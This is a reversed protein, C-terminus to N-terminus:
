EVCGRGWNGLIVALDAGDVIGDGNFDSPNEGLRGWSSLLIGLDNGDVVGDGNADGPCTEPHAIFVTIFGGTAQADQGGGTEAGVGVLDVPGSLDANGAALATPIGTLNMLAGANPILTLVVQGGTSDNRFLNLQKVPNGMDDVTDVLV